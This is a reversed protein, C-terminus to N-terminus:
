PVGDRGPVRVIVRTPSLALDVCCQNCMRVVDLASDLAVSIHKTSISHGNNSCHWQWAAVTGGGHLMALALALVQVELRM